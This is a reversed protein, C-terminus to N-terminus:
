RLYELKAVNTHNKRASLIAKDSYFEEIFKKPRIYEYLYEVKSNDIVTFPNKRLDIMM